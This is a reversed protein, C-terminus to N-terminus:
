DEGGIASGDDTGLPDDDFNRARTWIIFLAPEEPHPEQSVIENGIPLEISEGSAIVHKTYTYQEKM